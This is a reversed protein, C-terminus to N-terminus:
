VDDFASCLCVQHAPRARGVPTGPGCEGGDQQLDVWHACVMHDAGLSAPGEQAGQHSDKRKSSVGRLVTERWTAPVDKDHEDRVPLVPLPRVTWHWTQKIGTFFFLHMESEGNFPLEPKRELLEWLRGGAGLGKM